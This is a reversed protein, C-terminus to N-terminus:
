AKSKRMHDKRSVYLGGKRKQSYIWVTLLMVAISLVSYFIRSCTFAGIDKMFVHRGYLSNHRCVLTFRGIGGTLGAATAMVSGIWLVGQAFVAILPSFLETLAMGLATSFLINPLLWCVSLRPIALLDADSGPYLRVTSVSAACALILVPVALMFILAAYRTLVLKASSIKRSYILQAMKAKRDAAALAAAAFVPLISVIIGMYDCFLRGYANTIRDEKFIANYDALADEYTKPVRSFNSVINADSYESGGGIVADAKRMLERFHEYTVLVEIEPMVPEQYVATYGGNGDPEFTNGGEDFGAFGDLEQQTIGTIETIIEAIQATKKESLKVKKYFGIPYARYYGRLYSLVLSEAAAPMLLDPDEKEVTGYDTQEQSPPLLKEQTEPIFQTWYFATAAAIYILFTLSFLIRRCEKWFLM